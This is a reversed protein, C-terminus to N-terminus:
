PADLLDKTLDPMICILLIVKSLAVSGTVQRNHPGHKFPGLLTVERVRVNCALGNMGPYIATKIHFYVPEDLNKEPHERNVTCQM